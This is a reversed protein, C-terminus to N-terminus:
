FVTPISLLQLTLRRGNSDCADSFSIAPVNSDADGHLVFHQDIRLAKEELWFYKEAESLVGAVIALNNQLVEHVPGLADLQTEVEDLRTQLAARDQTGMDTSFGSGGKQLIELKVRLLARQQTLKEREDKQESVKALAMSLLYDFARRKLLKRLEEENASLDVLRHEDFSVAIQQVDNMLKDDVLAYGFVTKENREVVLLTVIHDPTPSTSALFERYARDSNLIENMRTASTFIVGLSPTNERSEKSATVPPPLGDVFAIIHTAAHLVPERLVKAYEPLIRMRPDTCDLAREIAAKLLSEPILTADQKDQTGFITSFLKFM